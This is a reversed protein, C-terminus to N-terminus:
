TPRAPWANEAAERKMSLLSANMQRRLWVPVILALVVSVACNRPTLRFRWSLQTHGQVDVFGWTADAAIALKGLAGGFGSLSSALLVPPRAATVVERVVSGNTLRLERSSGVSTWPGSPPSAALVGSFPGASAFPGSSPLATFWEWFADRPADIM